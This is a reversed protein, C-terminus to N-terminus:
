VTRRGYEAVQAELRAHSEGLAGVEGRLEKVDSSLLTFSKGQRISRDLLDKVMGSMEDMDDRVTRDKRNNVQKDVVKVHKNTQRAQWVNYALMALMGALGIVTTPYEANM